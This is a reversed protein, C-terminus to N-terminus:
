KFYAKKFADSYQEGISIALKGFIIKNKEIIQIKCLNVVFSRHVRIFGKTSLMDDIASITSLTRVVSDTTVIDVYERKAEIYLVDLLNIKITQGHSKVFICNEKVEFYRECVKNVSKLFAAYDIPKLLYDAADLQFGELAYDRYATVFIVKPANYLASILQLGNLDPMEIDCFVLDVEHNELFSFAEIASEFDAVLDLNQTKQIYGVMQALAYPEDDIVVCKIM